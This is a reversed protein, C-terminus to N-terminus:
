GDGDIVFGRLATMEGRRDMGLKSLTQRVHHKATHVSIELRSAIERNTLNDALLRAVQRERRSLTPLREADLASGRLTRLERIRDVLEAVDADLVCAGNALTKELVRLM